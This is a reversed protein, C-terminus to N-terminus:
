VVELKSKTPQKSIPKKKAYMEVVKVEDATLKLYNYIDQDEVVSEPLKPFLRLTAHYLLGARGNIDQRGCYFWFKAFKSNLQKERIELREVSDDDDALYYAHHTSGMSGDRDFYPITVGQQSVFLKPRYFLDGYKKLGEENTYYFTVGTAYLPHQFGEFRNISVLSKSFHTDLAVSRKMGMEALVWAKRHISLTNDLDFPLYPIDSLKDVSHINGNRTLITTGNNNAKDMVWSCINSGVNFEDGASLDIESIIDDAEAIFNKALGNWPVPTIFHAKGTPSLVKKAAIGFHNWLLTVAGRGSNNRVSYPPNSFIEEYGEFSDQGMEKEIKNVMNKEGQKNLVPFEDIFNIGTGDFIGKEVEAKELSYTDPCNKVCGEKPLLYDIRSPDIGLSLAAWVYEPSIIVMMRKNNGEMREKIKSYEVDRKVLYYSFGNKVCHVFLGEEHGMNFATNINDIQGTSLLDGISKRNGIRLNNTNNM